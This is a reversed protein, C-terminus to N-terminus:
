RQTPRCWWTTACSDCRTTSPCTTGRRTCCATPFRGGGGHDHQPLGRPDFKIVYVDGRGDRINFGPTVGETKASIVQWPVSRDPGAEAGRGAAAAEPTMGYIGIRNTFWTSNPVEDLANVNDAPPVRQAGFWTGIWRTIRTPDTIRERPQAWSDDFYDWKVSPDRGKPPETDRRDDEYWVVPGDRLPAAGQAALPALLVTAVLAAYAARIRM